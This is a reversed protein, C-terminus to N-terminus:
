VSADRLPEGADFVSGSTCKGNQTIIETGSPSVGTFPPNEGSVPSSSGTRILSRSVWQSLDGNLVTASPYVAAIQVKRTPSWLPQAPMSGAPLPMKQKSKTAAQVFLLAPHPAAGATKIKPFLGQRLFSLPAPPIGGAGNDNVGKRRNRSARNLWTILRRRSKRM